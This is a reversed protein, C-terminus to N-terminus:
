ILCTQWLLHSSQAKTEPSSYVDKGGVSVHHVAGGCLFVPNVNLQSPPVIIRMVNLAVGPGLKQVVGCIVHADVGGGGANENGNVQSVVEM